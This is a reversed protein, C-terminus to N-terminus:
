NKFHDVLEPLDGYFVGIGVGKYGHNALSVSSVPIVPLNSLGYERELINAFYSTLHDFGADALYVFANDNKILQQVNEAMKRLTPDIKRVKETAVIYGEQNVEMIPKIDFLNAFFSAPASLKRAKTIYSLDSLTFFFASHDRIYDLRRTVEAINKGQRLMSDAEYAMAGETLNLNLSDYVYINMKGDFARRCNQITEYTDSFKSSLTCVFLTQYGKAHLDKFIANIEAETPPSTKALASPSTQMIHTLSAPNINKGDLFDVNNINLHLPISQINQTLNLNALCSSSTSLVLHKM